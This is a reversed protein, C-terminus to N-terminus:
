RLLLVNSEYEMRSDRMDFINFEEFGGTKTAEDQHLADHGLKHLLVINKMVPGLGKKIFIFRNRMIIKYDGRRRNFPYFLVDIGIEKAIKHPNRTGCQTVLRNAKQVIDSTRIYM